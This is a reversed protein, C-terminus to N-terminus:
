NPTCSPFADRAPSCIEASQSLPRASEAATLGTTIVWGHNTRIGIEAVALAALGLLLAVVMVKLFFIYKSKKIWGHM